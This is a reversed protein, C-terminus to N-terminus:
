DNSKNKLMQDIYWKNQSTLTNTLIKQLESYPKKNITTDIDATYDDVFYIYDEYLNDTIDDGSKKSIVKCGCSLAKNIRHTELINDSYYPINLVVHSRKLKKTLEMPQILSNDFVFEIKKDPYQFQLQIYVNERKESYSGVFLYDIDREVHKTDYHIFDFWHYGKTIVGYTNKLYENSITHFDFVISAKLLEIYYKNRLSDSSPQESNMIIYGYSHNNHNLITLLEVPKLHAGYVIYIECASPNFDTIIKINLRQSLVIASENFIPHLTIIKVNDM